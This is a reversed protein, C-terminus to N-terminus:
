SNPAATAPRARRRGAVAHILALILALVLALGILGAAVAFAIRMGFAVADPAAAAIDSTGVAAAFVAGMVPTGTVFGLNRSLNLLGSIVGRRQQAVDAMVATNNGALFLQYGPCLVVLAALYGALGFLAPLTCLAWTGAAMLVLGAVVISRAGLRDVIRGAPIGSLASVVPGVSLVAGVLMADLGMGGVGMILLSM